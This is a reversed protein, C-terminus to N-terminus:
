ILEQVAILQQGINYLEGTTKAQFTNVRGGLSRLSDSLIRLSDSTRLILQATADLQSRRASDGQAITSQMSRLQEQLLAIDGKTALCGGVALLALPAFSAWHRGRVM